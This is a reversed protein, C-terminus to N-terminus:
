LLGATCSDRQRDVVSLQRDFNRVEEIAKQRSLRTRWQVSLSFMVMTCPRTMFPGHNYLRDSALERLIAWLSLSIPTYASFPSVTMAVDYYAENRFNSTRSQRSPSDICGDFRHLIKCYASFNM